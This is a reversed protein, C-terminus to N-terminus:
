KRGVLKNLSEGDINKWVEWGNSNCGIIVYAAKSPNDYFYDEVFTDDKIKAKSRETLIKEEIDPSTVEPRIKSDKLILIGGNKFYGKAYNMSKINLYLLSECEDYSVKEVEDNIAVYTNIYDDDSNIMFDLGLFTKRDKDSKFNFDWRNEIFNVLTVGRRLITEDNWIPKNAGDKYTLIERESYSGNQYRNCKITLDNDQLDRNIELSLQLLNGLSGRFRNRQELSYDKFVNLWYKASESQPFVHEISIIDSRNTPNFYHEPLIIDVGSYKKVLSSEYEYLFYRNAKWKYFGDRKFLRTITTSVASIDMVKNKSLVDLNYIYNTIEKINVKNLYLDHMYKFVNNRNFTAQYGCLRFVIFIFREIAKLLNLKDEDNIDNKSLTVMVLPKFYNYELVNLRSLWDNIQVNNYKSLNLMYWYPVLSKLSDVYDIIDKKTLRKTLDITEYEETIVDPEDDDNESVIKEEDNSEKEIDILGNFVRSQKFYKKLLFESYGKRIGEIYGFYVYSHALLFDDDPLTVTKNKGLYAYITKWAENIKNVLAKEEDKDLNMLLTLYILRNKLLELNSLKKGRNNMTEFAVNVNFNKSIKYINFMLKNTVKRFICEIETFDKTRAYLDNIKEKFYEKANDLNLTYFSEDVEGVYNPNLIRNKLYDDSPKDVEYGFLYTAILDGSNPKYKVLYQEAIESLRTDNIIIEDDRKNINMQRYLEIIVQILIIITTIRQQGDVVHYAHYDRNLLWSADNWLKLEEENELSTLEKLSIMGIYHERNNPLNNLDEWFDELQKREWSYGRQYNPIRFINNKFLENLSKLSDNM